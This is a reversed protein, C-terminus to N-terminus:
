NITKSSSYSMVVRSPIDPMAEGGDSGIEMTMGIERIEHPMDEAGRFDLADLHSRLRKVDFALDTIRHHDEFRPIWGM